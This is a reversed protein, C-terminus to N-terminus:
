SFTQDYHEMAQQLFRRAEAIEAESQVKLARWKPENPQWREPGLASWDAETLPVFGRNRRFVIEVGQGSKTDQIHLLIGREESEYLDRDRFVYVCPALPKPHLRGRAYLGTDQLLPEIFRTYLPELASVCSGHDDSTLRRGRYKPHKAPM